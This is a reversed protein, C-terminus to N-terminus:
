EEEGYIDYAITEIDEMIGNIDCEVTDMRDMLDKLKSMYWDQQRRKKDKYESISDCIAWLTLTAFLTGLVSLAIIVWLEM